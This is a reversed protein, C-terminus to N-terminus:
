AVLGSRVQASPAAQLHPQPRGYLYGQAMDCNQATLFRRQADTEVGEAVVLIGLEHALAITARVIAADDPDTTVDQVFSRDIKLEDIPFRKLYALSSYGTGFDDVSIRVGLASIEELLDSVQAADTMATTETIELKLLRPPVGTQQLANRVVEVIGRNMCQRASVNVAIPLAQRGSALAAALDKTAQLVVWAGIEVILGTEEAVAIFQDPLVLLDPTRRWRLLAEFGVLAGHRLEYQPQYHLEFLGDRLGHRLDIEIALRERTWIKLDSSYFHFGPDPHSKAHYMATDAKALLLDIELGDQPAMVVGVSCSSTMRTGNAEIEEGLVAVLKAAAAAVAQPGTVDEMLVVFEDGGWRAVFDTSRCIASLRAATVKLVEDGQRHGLSDNIRKFRDLDLFLIAAMGGHRQVRALALGLREHLMVRNPLNTLADHTAAHRLRGASAVQDTTDSLVVVAGDPRQDPGFLPSVSARVSRPAGGELLLELYNALRVETASRLCEDLASGLRKAGDAALPLTNVLPLGVPDAGALQYRAVPNAYRIALQADVTIVGDGIADLTALSHQRTRALQLRNTRIGLGLWVSCAALLGLIASLPAVWVRGLQLLAASALLPLCLMASVLLLPRWGSRLPGSPWLALGSVLLLAFALRWGDPAREILTHSRIAEFANAQFEVAPMTSQNGSVPTMLEGGLGSATIGIFVARGRVQSLLDPSALASAYSMRPQGPTMPLLVEHDRVWAQPSLVGASSEDRRLGPLAVTGPAIGTLGVAALAFAPHAAQGLGARLYIRRVQGDLDVEADAHGLLMASARLGAVPGSESINRDPQLAAAVPLVVRGHRKIASALADDSAPDTADPEAFMVALGIVSAEAAHLQNLLAAHVSRPWPWRGLRALSEDDIAIVIAPQATAPRKPLLLDYVLLDLRTVGSPEHWALLLVVVCGALWGSRRELVRRWGTGPAFPPLDGLVPAARRSM